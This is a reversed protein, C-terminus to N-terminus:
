THAHTNTHTITHSNTYTPGVHKHTLIDNTRPKTHQTHNQTHTHTYTHLSHLKIIFYTFSLFWLM